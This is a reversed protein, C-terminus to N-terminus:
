RSAYAIAKVSLAQSLKARSWLLGNVKSVVSARRVSAAARRSSDAV